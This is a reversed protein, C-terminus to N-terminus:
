LQRGGGSAEQPSGAVGHDAVVDDMGVAPQPQQQQHHHQDEGDAAAGERSPQGGMVINGANDTDTHHKISRSGYTQERAPLYM